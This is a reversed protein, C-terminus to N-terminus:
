GARSMTRPWESRWIFGRVEDDFERELGGQPPDRPGPLQFADIWSM